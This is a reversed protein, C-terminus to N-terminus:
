YLVAVTSDSLMQEEPTDGSVGILIWTRGTQRVFLKRQDKMPMVLSRGQTPFATAQDPRAHEAIRATLENTPWPRRDRRGEVLAQAEFEEVGNAAFLPVLMVERPRGSGVAAQYAPGSIGGDKDVWYTLGVLPQDPPIVVALVDSRRFERLLDCVAKGEDPIDSGRCPVKQMLNKIVVDSLDPATLGVATTAGSPPALVPAPATSPLVNPAAAEKPPSSRGSLKADLAALLEKPPDAFSVIVFGTPWERFFPAPPPQRMIPKAFLEAAQAQDAGAYAFFYVTGKQGACDFSQAHRELAAPLVSRYVKYQYFLDTKENVPYFGGTPRCLAPLDDPRLLYRDLPGAGRCFVPFNIMVALVFIRKMM